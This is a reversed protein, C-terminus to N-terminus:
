FKWLCRKLSVSRDQNQVATNAAFRSQTRERFTERNIGDLGTYMGVAIDKALFKTAKFPRVTSAIFIGTARQFAGLRNSNPIIDFM